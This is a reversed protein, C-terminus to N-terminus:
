ELRALVQPLIEPLDEAILGVGFTTASEGHLWVAACAAEFAPMGQALLGTILGALVDGSGATALSPPANTNIATRGDPSAIVTDPGKLVVIAGSLRAAKLARDCKGGPLAGFLRAFEGHHPTLVVPASRAQIAAFLKEPTFDQMRDRGLFGISAAQDSRGANAGPSSFANLGDADIVAAAKSQLVTVVDEATESNAVAGPGILVANRREDALFDGVAGNDGVVRVMIATLHAANVATAATSGVVTVLGAGIRAAARAGLRAAGTQYAPGSVVVVHGRKYKHDSLEPRPFHARWAAPTNEVASPKIDALVSAPIGIDAVITEGCLMRGPMLVHGPKKRFFTVTRKAHVVPGEAEGTTGNLGSPVDIALVPLGSANIADVLEAAEGELPRSLGAGFLADIVLHMSQPADPNAPRVALPWKRAMQASDGKLATREGLLHMRVDFGRERLHRAAVFGDGGNNGPGALVVIRANASVMKAAEAAVAKGAAEMLNLSPVGSAIARRDAEAMDETTLLENM